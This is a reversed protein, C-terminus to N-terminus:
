RLVILGVVLDMDFPTFSTRQPISSNKYLTLGPLLQVLRLRGRVCSAHEIYEKLSFRRMCAKPDCSMTYAPMLCQFLAESLPVCARMKVIFRKLASAFTPILSPIYRVSDPAQASMVDCHGVSHICYGTTLGYRSFSLERESTHESTLM